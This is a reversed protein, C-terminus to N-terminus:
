EHKGNDEDAILKELTERANRRVEEKLEKNEVTEELLMRRKIKNFEKNTDVFQKRTPGLLGEEDVIHLRSFHMPVRDSLNTGIWERRFSWVRGKATDILFAEASDGEPFEGDVKHRNIVIQYRGVSGGGLATELKECGTIAVVAALLAAIRGM